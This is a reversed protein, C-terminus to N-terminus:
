GHLVIVLPTLRAFRPFRASTTWMAFRMKLPTYFPTYDNCIVLRIGTLPAKALDDDIQKFYAEKIEALFDDFSVNLYVFHVAAYGDDFTLLQQKATEITAHIKKLFGATLTLPFSRAKPPGTRFAMEEDSINITKVECLVRDLALSGELDPTKKSSEPIFRLNTCGSSKLYNYARAEHLADFLQHWGRGRKDRAILRPLAKGKLHM